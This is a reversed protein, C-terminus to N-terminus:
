STRKKSKMIEIEMKLRDNEERLAELQPDAKKRVQSSSIAAAQRLEDKYSLLPQYLQFYARGVVGSFLDLKPNSTGARLIQKEAIGPYPDIYIIREIGLQYAKKSCLECPSATSYLIGRFIGAGGYKTLQLFANEEAHLSRTHVQNNDGKLHNHLEKFCFSINHGCKKYSTVNDNQYVTSFYDRFETNEKEYETFANQDNGAILDDSSRLLCPVQNQPTNNWGIAKVSYNQDTIAAGVQRSICGSNVKASYALQMIREDPTPIVLGPKLMLSYYLVLQRKLQNYNEDKSETNNIHIDALEICKQINQSIYLDKGVLRAPYEKSDLKEIEQQTFNLKGLRKKRTDDDTNVSVLFFSSFRERLFYVEFPNRLADIVVYAPQGKDNAFQRIVKIVKNTKGVITDTHRPDFENKSNIASGCSRINDGVKQYVSTYFSQSSKQSLKSKLKETFYHLDKTYFKFANQIKEKKESDSQEPVRLLSVAQHFTNYETELEKLAESYDISSDIEESLFQCFENFSHELIFSTIIDKIRIIFFPSWNEKAFMSVIRTKRRDNDHNYKMSDLKPIRFSELKKSLLEATKSCGSGTRGTLGIVLFNRRYSYIKDIGNTM